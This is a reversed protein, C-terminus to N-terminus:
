ASRKAAGERAILREVDLLILLNEGTSVVGQIFRSGEDNSAGPATDIADDSVEEVEAVSDVVIGVSDEDVDLIIIRTSEDYSQPPLGMRKRTDLVPVVNGRLNIIGLIYPPAGPVPAIDVQKLVEQVKLVDVAYTEGEITFSVWQTTPGKPADEDNGATDYEAHELQKAERPDM